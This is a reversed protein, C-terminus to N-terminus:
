GTEMLRLAENVVQEPTLGFKKYIVEGPASAGFHSIGIIVGEMGVYREWGFPSAAEVSIRRKIGPPLVKNRYDAPQADFLEWSPLSVVWAGIGKEQLCKGAELVIHVESGTGILIVDPAAKAEWLVYGGRSVGSALAFKNRDLIPLNQRSLILTTPGNRRELAIKWAEATETADAPRLTVLNPIARMGILQEIPQHTPGDEGLGISDHTYVYIVRIGMMAALRVPPRMYDYFILFTGTYPILGGHLAIGSSVSGMAHERVGFHMNRGKYDAPGFDGLGKLNTKTSPALDASGGFLSHVKGAIANIVRGSAERTAMPKDQGKFLDALGNDWGEPLNGSLDAELQRAEAPYAKRYAELKEQWEHQWRDGRETARRFHALAEAPVNFSEYSWGLNKRSQLAEEPGLPEGHAAATGAKSPSGYGITTRCVILTPHTTEAQGVRIAADVSATDMGDIPGIVHWGYARFREAVDETFAINTKGEISIDNSDYLAIIKGLRLTGALSAAESTVGEELDGDSVITYTFHNIIDFGPRNYNEALWKEAVAMGVANAFGQGLPGTTTEVGPTPGYEVHGPTKSDWQRFNKLDDLTLDYGTLYLLSYLLMSAHGCSLVFRDRDPWKPDRPNHKLFRDWLVFAMPSAGMPAGPHGSKAKEVADIALFRMTNIYLEDLSGGTAGASASAVM